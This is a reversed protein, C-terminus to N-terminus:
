PLLITTGTKQHLKGDLDTAEIKWIITQPDQIQNKFRGDWGPFDSASEFLLQGWRNYVRFYNVKQFGFLLPRLYDNLGDGNPTFASPLYIDIKKYTKVLQTDITICGVSNSIRIEYLEDTIGRFYPSVLRSDNLKESPIWEYASGFDRAQLKVPFNLPARVDQYRIGARATDITVFVKDSNVPETCNDNYLLAFYEGTQQVTYQQQNANFIPSSNLFWQISDASASQLITPNPSGACFITKGDLQLTTSIHQPSITISDFSQCGGLPSSVKLQYRIFTDTVVFPNPSNPDSLGTSPTWNYLLGNVPIGGIQVPDLNCPLLDPGANAVVNITDLQQILTDRCGYGPFPNLEVAVITGPPPPPALHLTQSTGLLSTFNANYWNYSQYGLPAKVDIATDLSCYKAGSLFSNCEASIDIYAYGFHAQFTCDATKVFFRINKGQLGDLNVTNSTWDKFLVPTLGGPNPSVQFGPLSNNAVFSFSSCNLVVNDTLNIIEIQMRPQESVTHGPDQIVVAYQYTLRYKDANLPILFDYSVGEAQGSGLSNGLKISHGSGNPCNKPFGGYEDLGDGPNSSLMTHRDTVPGPVPNLYINNVSIDSEVIGIYCQWGDFSGSEFDLNSPCQSFSSKYSFLSILLVPLYCCRFTFKVEKYIKWQRM